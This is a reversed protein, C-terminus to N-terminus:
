EKTRWSFMASPSYDYYVIKLDQVQDTLTDEYTKELKSSFLSQLIAGRQGGTCFNAEGGSIFKVTFYPPWINWLAALKNIQLHVCLGSKGGSSESQFALVSFVTM